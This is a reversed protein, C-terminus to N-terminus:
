VYLCTKRKAAQKLGRCKLWCKLQELTYNAPASKFKSEPVDENEM